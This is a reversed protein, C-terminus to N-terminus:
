KTEKLSSLYAALADLDEAPLAPYAKMKSDAKMEKPSVIWKKIQEVTLRSGVGDLPTRTNGKGAISHCMSCHQAAFVTKGKEITGKETTAADGARAASSIALLLGVCLATVLSRNM